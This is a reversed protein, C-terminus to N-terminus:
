LIRILATSPAAPPFLVHFEGQNSAQDNVFDLVAVARNQKTANYILAGRAVLTPAPWVPDNWTFCATRAVGFIQGGTLAMGGAQYGDGAAEGETTYAATSDPSLDAASTYLAIMFTDLTLNHVGSLLEMKFSTAVGPAIM